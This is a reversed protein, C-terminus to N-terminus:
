FHHTHAPILVGVIDRALVALAAAIGVFVLLRDRCVGAPSVFVDLGAPRVQELHHFAALDVQHSTNGVGLVTCLVHQETLQRHAPFDIIQIGVQGVRVNRGRVQASQVAFADCQQFGAHLGGLEILPLLIVAQMQLIHPGVAEFLALLLRLAALDVADNGGLRRGPHFVAHRGNGLGAAGVDVKGDAPGPLVQLFLQIVGHALHFEVLRKVSVLQVLPIKRGGIRRHQGALFLVPDRLM